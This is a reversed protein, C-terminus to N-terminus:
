AHHDTKEALKPDVFERSVLDKETASIERNEKLLL